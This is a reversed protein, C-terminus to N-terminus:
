GSWFVRPYLSLDPLCAVDTNSTPHYPVILQSLNLWEQTRGQMEMVEALKVFKPLVKCGEDV